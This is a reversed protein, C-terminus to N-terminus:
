RPRSELAARLLDRSAAGNAHWALLPRLPGDADTFALSPPSARTWAFHRQFNAEDTCHFGVGKAFRKRKPDEHDCGTPSADRLRFFRKMSAFLTANEDVVVRDPFELSYAALACQDCCKAATKSAGSHRRRADLLVHSPLAKTSAMEDLSQIAYRLFLVLASPRGAYLGSNLFPTPVARHLSTSSSALATAERESCVMGVYCSAEASAVLADPRRRTM